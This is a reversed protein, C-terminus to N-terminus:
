EARILKDLDAAPFGLRQLFINSWERLSENKWSFALAISASDALAPLYAVALAQEPYRQFYTKAQAEDVYCAFLKGAAVMSILEAPDALRTITSGPFSRELPTYYLPADITGFIIEEQQWPNGKPNLNIRLPRNQAGLGARLKRNVLFVTDLKLYPQSFLLKEADKLNVIFKSVGCDVENALLATVLAQHDPYTWLQLQDIELSHQLKKLLEVELGQWQGHKGEYVFPFNDQAIIGARFVPVKQVLNLHDADAAGRAPSQCFLLSLALLVPFLIVRNM